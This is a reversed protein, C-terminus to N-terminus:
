FARVSRAVIRLFEVFWSDPDPKRTTHVAQALGSLMWRTRAIGAFRRQWLAERGLWGSAPDLREVPTITISQAGM